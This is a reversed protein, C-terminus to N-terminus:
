PVTLTIELSGGIGHFYLLTRNELTGKFAKNACTQIIYWHNQKKVPKNGNEPEKLFHSACKKSVLLLLSVRTLFVVIDEM